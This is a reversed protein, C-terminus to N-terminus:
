GMLAARRILLRRECRGKAPGLYVLDVRIDDAAIDIRSMGHQALFSDLTRALEAKVNPGGQSELWGVEIWDEV